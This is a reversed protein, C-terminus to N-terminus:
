KCLWGHQYIEDNHFFFFNFHFFRKKKLYTKKMSIFRMQYFRKKQMVLRIGLIINTPFLIYFSFYYKLHPLLSDFGTKLTM